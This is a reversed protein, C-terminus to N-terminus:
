EITTKWSVNSRVKSLMALFALETRWLRVMVVSMADEMADALGDKGDKNWGHCSDNDAHDDTNKTQQSTVENAPQPEGDDATALLSCVRTNSGIVNGNDHSIGVLLFAKDLFLLSLMQWAVFICRGIFISLLLDHLSHAAVVFM